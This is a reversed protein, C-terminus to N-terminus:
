LEITYPSVRDPLPLHHLDRDDDDDHDDHNLAVIAKVVIALSELAENSSRWRPPTPRSRQLAQSFLDEDNL